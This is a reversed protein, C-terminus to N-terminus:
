EVYSPLHVKYPVTTTQQPLINYRLLYLPICPKCYTTLASLVVADAALQLLLYLLNQRVHKYHRLIIKTWFHDCGPSSLWGSSKREWGLNLDRSLFVTDKQTIALYAGTYVLKQRPQVVRTFEVAVTCERRAGRWRCLSAEQNFCYWGMPWRTPHWSIELLSYVPSEAFQSDIKQQHVGPVKMLMSINKLLFCLHVIRGHCVAESMRWALGDAPIFIGERQGRHFAEAMRLSDMRVKFIGHKYQVTRPEDYKKGLITSKRTTEQGDKSPADM